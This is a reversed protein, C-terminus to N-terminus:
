RPLIGGFEHPGIHTFVGLQTEHPHEGVSSGEDRPRQDVLVGQFGFDPALDEIYAAKAADTYSGAFFSEATESAFRAWNAEEHGPNIPARHGSNRKRDSM